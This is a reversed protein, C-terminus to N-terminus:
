EMNITYRRRVEAGVGAAAGSDSALEGSTSKESDMALIVKATRGGSTTSNRQNATLQTTPNSSSSLNIMHNSPLGSGPAPPPLGNTSASLVSSSSRGSDNDSNLNSRNLHAIFEVALPSTSCSSLARGTEGATIQLFRGNEEKKGAEELRAPEDRSTIVRDLNASAAPRCALSAGGDGGRGGGGVVMVVIDEGSGTQSANNAGTVKAPPQSENDEKLPHKQEQQQRRYRSGGGAAPSREFSGFKSEGAEQSSARLHCCGFQGVDGSPLCASSLSRPFAPQRRNRSPM